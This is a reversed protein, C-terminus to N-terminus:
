AASASGVSGRHEAPLGHQDTHRGRDARRHAIRKWILDLVVSLGIVGLLAATAAPEEALTTTAFVVLTTASTLLAM